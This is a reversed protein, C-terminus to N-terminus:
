VQFTLQDVMSDAIEDCIQDLREETMGVPPRAPMRETGAQHFPAKPDSTGFSFGEQPEDFIERIADGGKSTLSKRLAGTEVLITDHGKRRVTAPALPPWPAGTADQAADFFGQHDNELDKVAQELVPKFTADRWDNEVGAMVGGIANELDKEDRVDYAEKTAM